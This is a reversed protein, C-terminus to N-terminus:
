SKLGMVALMQEASTDKLLMSHSHALALRFSVRRKLMEHLLTDAFVFRIASPTQAIDSFFLSLLNHTM